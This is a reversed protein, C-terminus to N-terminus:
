KTVYESNVTTNHDREVQTTESSPTYGVCM